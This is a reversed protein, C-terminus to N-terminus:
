RLDIRYAWAYRGSGASPPQLTLASDGQSWGVRENTGLLRISAIQRDLLRASKGM